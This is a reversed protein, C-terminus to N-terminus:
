KDIAVITVVTRGRKDRTIQRHRRISRQDDPDDLPSEIARQQLPTM